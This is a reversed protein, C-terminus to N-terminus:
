EPPTAKLEARVAEIQTQLTDIDTTNNYQQLITGHTPCQFEHETADAFDFREAGEPCAFWEHTQESQLATELSMLDRKMKTSMARSVNEPHIFWFFTLWGTEKDKLKHYEAIRAEYLTYLVKRIHSPKEGLEQSLMTDTAEEHNLLAETIRLGNEGVVEEIYARARPDELVTM